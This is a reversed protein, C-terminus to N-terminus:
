KKEDEFSMHPTQLCRGRWNLDNTFGAIKKNYLEVVKYTKNKTVGWFAAYEEAKKNSNFSVSLLIQWHSRQHTNLFSSLKESM